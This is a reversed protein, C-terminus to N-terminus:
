KILGAITKDLGDFYPIVFPQYNIIRMKIKHFDGSKIVSKITKMWSSANLQKLKKSNVSSLNAVNLDAKGIDVTFGAWEELTKPPKFLGNAVIEDFLPSGPYPTYLCYTHRTPNIEDLLKLTMEMEEETETPSGLVISATNKIKYKNCLNFAEKIQEVTIAKKMKNLIRQSGSEVGFYLWAGKFKKFKKLFEKNVYNIRTEVFLNYDPSLYDLIKYLREKDATFNDDHFKLNKNKTLKEVNRIEKIVREASMGRWRAENFGLNYCFTCRYPCGRSTVLVIDFKFYMKYNILDWPLLPLEDLNEILPRKKNIIIKGDNKYGIGLVKSLDKKNEISDVLEVFTYEGEGIVVYDIFKNELTQKPLLSAHVGGMVIPFSEGFMSKAKKAIEIVDLLMPGTLASLGIMDPKFKKIKTFVFFDLNRDFIKITHGKERLVAAIFMLGLPPCTTGQMNRTNPMILAIKM